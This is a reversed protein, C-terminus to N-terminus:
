EKLEEDFIPEAQLHRARSVFQSASINLYKPRSIPCLLLMAFSCDPLSSMHLYIDLSLFYVGMVDRAVVLWCSTLVFTHDIELSFLLTKHSIWCCYLYM